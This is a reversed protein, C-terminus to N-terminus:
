NEMEEQDHTPPLDRAALYCRAAAEDLLVSSERACMRHAISLAALAHDIEETAAAAPLCVQFGFSWDGDTEMAHARALRLAGSATLLFIALAQRTAEAAVACRALEVSFLIQGEIMAIRAPPASVADLDASFENPGREAFTWSSERLLEGLHVGDADSIQKAARAANSGPFKLLRHGEHFGQVAWRMRELLQIEDLLVIDTRLTLDRSAANLALKVGGPLTGNGLLARGLAVAERRIGDPHCALQLFGEELSATMPLRAGNQVVCRWRWPGVPELERTCKDLVRYASEAAENALRM